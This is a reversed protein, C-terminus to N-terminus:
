VLDAALQFDISSSTLILNLNIEEVSRTPKIFVWVNLIGNDIDSASNNSDDVVVRFEEVGRRAEVSSMYANILARVTTRTIDDNLEFLFNEELTRIIQPAIALLLLRVNMRDLSSPRRQLTKQGWIVIGSGPRFQIPNVGSDYLYDMDGANYRVAVDEVGLIGRQLGAVPFWPENVEGSRAYAGAVYGDPAIEITRANFRDTIELHPSFMGAFSSNINSEVERFEVVQAASANTADHSLIAVCDQRAECIDVIVRQFGATSWGGDMFLMMPYSEKNQFVDAATIMDADSVATGDSASSFAVATLYPLPVQGGNLPNNEARIYASRELLTEVYMNKGYGDLQGEVRSCIWTEKLAGKYYVDIGFAEAVAPENITRTARVNLDGSGGTTPVIEDTGALAAEQTACLYLLSTTTNSSVYYTRTALLGDPVTAGSAPSIAVEIGAVFDNTVQIEGTTLLNTQTGDLDVTALAHDIFVSVSLDENWVGPDAGRLMVLDDGEFTADESVEGVDVRTGTATLYIKGYEVDSAVARRVWLKDARELYALASFHGLNMGVEITGGPTAEDLFEGQTTVFFPRDVPGRKLPLVIGAYAGEFNPVRSSLDTEVINVRPAAM